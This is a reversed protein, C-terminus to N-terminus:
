KFEEILSKETFARWALRFDKKTTYTGENYYGPAYRVRLYFTCERHPKLSLVSSIRGRKRTKVVRVVKNDKDTIKLYFYPYKM